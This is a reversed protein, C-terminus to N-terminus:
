RTHDQAHRQRVVEFLAISGAVAANLSEVAGLMPLNVVFDCAERTLRRLGSAESGVVLAVPRDLDVDYLSGSATADLGVIWIGATRVDNLARVLNTAQSIRLHHLAGASV